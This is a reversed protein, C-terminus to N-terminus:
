TVVRSRREMFVTDRWVGDRRAIRERTGVVRFGCREHLALSARNEPFISTQIMWIGAAESQAILAELLRRGVGRGRVHEAVYVSNEAVGAYCRRRSAPALAAWGVVEGLLDAVIRQGPLHREDWQAWSPVETEFTALGDRMGDWYIDAVATWDDETLARLEVSPPAAVLM